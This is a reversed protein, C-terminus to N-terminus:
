KNFSNLLTFFEERDIVKDNESLGIQEAFRWFAQPKYNQKKLSM